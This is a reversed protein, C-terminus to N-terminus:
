YLLQYNFLFFIGATGLIIYVVPESKSIMVAKNGANPFFKHLIIWWLYGIFTGATNTILDDIDTARTNFLQCIEILLSMSLGVILVKGVKRYNNWILPLLFGLPTFMIINLINAVAGQSSFPILNINRYMMRHYVFDWVTGIGAADFIALYCYFM